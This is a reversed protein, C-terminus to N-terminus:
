IRVADQCTAVALLIQEISGDETLKELLTSILARGVGKHRQEPAVYVAYIHGKHREKQGKERVFTAMGILLESEFAGATFNDLSSDRFRFAITEVATARHEEVGMGFAFPEGELAQL